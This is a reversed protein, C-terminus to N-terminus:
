LASKALMAHVGKESNVLQTIRMDCALSCLAYADERSLDTISTILTIMERLAQKAADDLDSDFAMTIHHTPTEARPLKLTMDKRVILEFTGSLSTELASVNVEGDGQVGHGDGASFLAGEVWVPLYLTTGPVLEKNDLNGGHERPPGSLITGYAPPPAVGLVGFFPSLPLDTGWPLKAVKADKDIGIHILRLYPFDEPLTGVHPRFNNLGWNSRLSIDHIRVELVNGPEAGEVWVPGNLIHASGKMELKEHVERLEPLVEFSADPLAGVRSAALCLMTVSDGSAVKLVPPLSADFYGWHVTEPSADLVHTAPM